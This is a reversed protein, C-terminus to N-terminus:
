IATGYQRLWALAERRANALISEPIKGHHLLGVCGIWVAWLKLPLEHTCARCLLWHRPIPAHCNPCM